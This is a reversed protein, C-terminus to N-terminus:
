VRAREGNVLGGGSRYDARTDPERTGDPTTKQQTTSATERQGRDAVEWVTGETIARDAGAM